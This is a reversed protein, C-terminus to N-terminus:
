RSDVLSSIMLDTFSLNNFWNKRSSVDPTFDTVACSLIVHFYEAQEM